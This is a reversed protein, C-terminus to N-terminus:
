CCAAPLIQVSDTEIHFNLMCQQPSSLLCCHGESRAEDLLAPLDSNLRRWKAFWGAAFRLIHVDLAISERVDPRQVKVAVTRGSGRLRGKYVQAHPRLQWIM